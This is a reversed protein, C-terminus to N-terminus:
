GPNLQGRWADNRPVFYDGNPHHIVCGYLMDYFKCTTSREIAALATVKKDQYLLLWFILVSFLKQGCAFSGARKETM